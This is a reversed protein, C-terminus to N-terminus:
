FEASDGAVYGTTWCLQLSYGGSPRDIDLTDGALYLNPVIRSRMCKFDIEELKVGGSTIIAKKASLLGAVRMGMGKLLKALGQRQIRSVSHCFLDPDIGSLEVAASALAHPLLPALANKFKKNNNAILHQQLMRDLDQLQMGPFLDISLFVDGYPLMERVDSSLNLIAPGSVGFHTFLIKGRYSKEKKGHQVIAIGADPLSVGQLKRAWADHIRLPVLAAAPEIVTHGLESLWSFGEGTSGTEPHSKGGTAVIFSAAHIRTGDGFEAYALRGGEQALRVVPSATRMIVNGERMYSMLADLVSQSRDSKPFVRKEAEIKTPVGHAEFFDLAERVGFRSFPSFLFKGGEKFKALLTRIDFEANALNCRGGGTMLLKMGLSPNKEILITRAGRQAARGAAMMGAPGGGIVAVDWSQAGTKHMRANYCM